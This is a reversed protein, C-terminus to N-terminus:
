LGPKSGGNGPIVIGESELVRRYAGAHDSAVKAFRRVSMSRVPLGTKDKSHANKLAVFELSEDESDFVTIEAQQQTGRGEGLRFCPRGFSDVVLWGEPHRAATDAMAIGIQIYQGAISRQSDSPGGERRYVIGDVVARGMLGFRLIPEAGMKPDEGFHTLIFGAFETDSMTPGDRSGAMADQRADAYAGTSVSPSRVAAATGDLNERLQEAFNALASPMLTAGGQTTRRFRENEDTRASLVSYSNRRKDSFRLLYAGDSGSSEDAIKTVLATHCRGDDFSGDPSAFYDEFFAALDAALDTAAAIPIEREEVGRTDVVQCLKMTALRECMRLVASSETQLTAVAITILAADTAAAKANDEIRSPLRRADLLVDICSAVQRRFGHGLCDALERRFTQNRYVKVRAKQSESKSM